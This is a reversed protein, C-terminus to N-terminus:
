RGPLTRSVKAPCLIKGQYQYGVFRIYVLEGEQIDAADPQHIQPNYATEEWPKGITECGWEALLNDLPAFMSLLNKAPLEPKYGVMKHISPYNTLLTQLKEFASIRFEDALEVRQRKLESYLRLGDQRLTEKETIVQQLKQELELYDQSYKKVKEELLQIHQIQSRRKKTRLLAVNILPITLILSSIGFAIAILSGLSFMGIGWNDLWISSLLYYDM